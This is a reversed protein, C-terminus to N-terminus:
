GLPLPAYQPVNGGGARRRQRRLHAFHGFFGLGYQAGYPSIPRDLFALSLTSLARTAHRKTLRNPRDVLRTANRPRKTHLRITRLLKPTRRRLAPPGLGM